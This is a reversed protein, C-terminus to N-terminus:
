RQTRGKPERRDPLRGLLLLPSVFLAFACACFGLGLLSVADGLARMYGMLILPLALAPVVLQSLALVRTLPAGHEDSLAVLAAGLCVGLGISRINSKM